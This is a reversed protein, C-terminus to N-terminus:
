EYGFAKVFPALPDLWPELHKQYNRWRGVAGKSIPKTVAAYTPSRVLKSRAHEDFRLVRADWAAGLYELARRATGELDAVLDEYRVELFSGALCPAMARWLGMILAYEQVTGELTLFVSSGQGLPLPQMFCSLCVDRPDRLAVLLKAEPFIRVFAPILGTLSPNKDLLLRADPPHGMFKTMGDVYDHRAKWLVAPPAAELMDLIPTVPPFARVVLGFAERNFITTEEASVFDPHSDLVQELLTTGSRPHGCLLAVRPPPQLDAAQARWRGVMEPNLKETTSKVRSHILKQTAIFQRANPLIMNKAELFAAMAEDYRGQADLVAGMEYWGRIRTSWSDQDSRALVPRLRQEAEGTRGSLRDLRARVLSAMANAPALRLARDVLECAEELLRFREYIEALKVFTDPSAGPEKVARELYIRAMEYREFARCKIAAMVMAQDKNPAIRIAKEFCREAAEYDYRSGHAAGIDLLLAPNAPDQRAAQEMTKFYEPYDQKQWAQQARQMLRTFAGESIMRKLKM